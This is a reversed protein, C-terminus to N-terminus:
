AMRNWVVLAGLPAAIIAIGIAAALARLLFPELVTPREAAAAM